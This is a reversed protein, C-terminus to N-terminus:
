LYKCFERRATTSIWAWIIMCTVRNVTIRNGYLDGLYKLFRTIKHYDKHSVKIDDVHWTVTMQSGNIIKDAVCPDYIM